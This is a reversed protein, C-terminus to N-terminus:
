NDLVLEIADSVHFLPLLACGGPANSLTAWQARMTFGAFVPDCPLDVPYEAEGAALPVLTSLFPNIVGCGPGCVALPPALTVDLLSLAFTAAPDAGTLTVAFAENGLAFPSNVGVTGGVGCSGTGLVSTVPGGQFTAYLRSQLTAVNNPIDYQRNTVLGQESTLDGGSRRSAIAGNSNSLNTNAIVSPGGCTAADDLQLNVLEIAGLRNWMATYKSGMLSVKASGENTNPTASIPAASVYQVDVGNWIGHAAYVDEMSNTAEEREFVLMFGQGDGDIDPRKIPRGLSQFMNTGPAAGLVTGAYNIARVPMNQDDWQCGIFWRGIARGDKTICPTNRLPDAGPFPTDFTDVTPPNTHMRVVCSRIGLNADDWVCLCIGDASTSFYSDGGVDPKRESATTNAVQIISSVAGTAADVSAGRIDWNGTGNDEWAVFFNDEINNNGVKPEYSSQNNVAIPIANGVRVGSGSIRQGWVDWNGGGLQHNFVVLYVDNTVDYAIDPRVDDFSVGTNIVGSILPDVDIPWAATDVFSAPLVLDLHQGDYNMHGTVRAGDADIGLVAGFQVGGFEGASFQLQGVESAPTCSLATDIDYRVVLDGQQGLREELLV